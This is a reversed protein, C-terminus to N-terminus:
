QAICTNYVKVKQNYDETKQKIEEILSNIDAVIANYQEVLINYQSPNNKQTQMHAFLTDAATKTSEIKNQLADIKNKELTSLTPCDSRPRAFIQTAFWATKGEFEAKYVDIGIESFKTSIINAKHGESNMWAQVLAADSEFNGLAINEGITIYEYGVDEAVTAAQQGTPSVHEFYQKEAMDLNRKHAIEALTENWVLTSSAFNLRASNTFSFVDTANLIAQQEATFHTLPGSISFNEAIQSIKSSISHPTESNFSYLQFFVAGIIVCLSAIIIFIRITRIM